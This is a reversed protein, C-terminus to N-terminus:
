NENKSLIKYILVVSAIIGIGIGAIYIIKKTLTNKSEVTTTTLKKDDLVNLLEEEHTHTPSPSAYSFSDRERDKDGENNTSHISSIIDSRTPPTPPRMRPSSEVDSVENAEDVPSIASSRTKKDYQNFSNKASFLRQYLLM